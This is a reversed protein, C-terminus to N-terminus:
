IKPEIWDSHVGVQTEVIRACITVAAAAAAKAYCRKRSIGQMKKGGDARQM